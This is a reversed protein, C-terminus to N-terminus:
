WNQLSLKAELLKLEEERQKCDPCYKSVMEYFGKAHNKIKTHALEHIVVYDIAEGPALVIRWSFNLNNKSTCSGWRRRASTVKVSAYKADMKEAFIEVRKQLIEKAQKKYWAIILQRKDAMDIDPVLFFDGQFIVRKGRARVPYEKGLFDLTEVKYLERQRLILKAADLKQEIWSRKDSVFRDILQKDLKKPALVEVEARDTVRILVTRRFGRILKYPTVQM